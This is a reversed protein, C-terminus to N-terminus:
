RRQLDCLRSVGRAWRLFCGGGRGFHRDVPARDEPDDTVTGDNLAGPLLGEEELIMITKSPHKITQLDLPFTGTPLAFFVGNRSYSFIPPTVATSLDRVKSDLPCLFISRAASESLYNQQVFISDRLLNPINIPGFTWGPPNTSLADNGSCLKESNDGAYILNVAALQKLNNLCIVMRARKRAASLAPVLISALLSVIAMVVLIETLTFAKRVFVWGTKNSTAM